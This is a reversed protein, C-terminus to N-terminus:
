LGIQGLFISWAQPEVALTLLIGGLAGGLHAEHAIRSGGGQSQKKIAYISFGVFGFAFMWAPIPVAGFLYLLRHPNFLCFGFVIGSIAGSAGVASYSDNLRHMYYSLGHAAMESGFYVILFGISGLRLELYPGFAFLTIMNFALHGLGAHVFGATLFRYYERHERIQKPKFSLREIISQDVFLSYGGIMVNILLIFLSFPAEIFLTM